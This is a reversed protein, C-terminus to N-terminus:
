RLADVGTTEDMRDLLAVRDGLDVGPLVGSGGYVPLESLQRDRARPRLADRVADEIVESVTRGTRAAQAKARRYLDEDIRITTRM